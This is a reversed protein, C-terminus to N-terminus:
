TARSPDRTLLCGSVRWSSDPHQELIFLVLWAEGDSDELHVPQLVTEGDSVMPAFMVSRPAIIPAYGSRVMAMFREPSGLMAQLTPAALAFAAASDQQQLAVLQATITQRIITADQAQVTPSLLASSLIIGAFAYRM